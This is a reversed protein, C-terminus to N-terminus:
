LSGAAGTEPRVSQNISMEGNSLYYLGAVNVKRDQRTLQWRYPVIQYLGVEDNTQVLPRM